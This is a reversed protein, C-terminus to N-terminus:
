AAEGEDKPFMLDGIGTAVTLKQAGSLRSYHQTTSLDAHGVAASIAELNMGSAIGLTVFSARLDHMTLNPNDIEALALIKHFVKRPDVARNAGRAGPFVFEGDIRNRRERLLEVVKPHLFVMKPVRSKSGKEAPIRWTPQEGNLRVHDWRMRAVAGRRQGTVLAVFLVDALSLRGEIPEGKFMGRGPRTHKYHCHERKFTDIAAIFRQIEDGRLCEERRATPYPEVGRCPNMKKGALKHVKLYREFVSSVLVLVNNATYTGGSRRLNKRREDLGEANVVGLKVNREIWGDDIEDMLVHTFRELYLAYMRDQQYCSRGGSAKHWAAYEAYAMGLTVTGPQERKPVKGGAEATAGNLKDVQTRAQEVTWEGLTGIRIKATLSARTRDKRYFYFTKAGKPSIRLVLNPRETDHLYVDREPDPRWGELRTDTFKFQRKDDNVTRM